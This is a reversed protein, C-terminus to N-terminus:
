EPEELGAAVREAHYRKNAAAIDLVDFETKIPRRPAHKAAWEDEAIRAMSALSVSCSELARSIRRLLALARLWKFM